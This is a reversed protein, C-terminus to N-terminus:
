FVDEESNSVPEVIDQTLIQEYDTINKETSLVMPVFFEYYFPVSRIIENNVINVIHNTFFSVILSAIMCAVHSTQKMTCVGDDAEEDSFLYVNEYINATEPTVCFIQFHEALLRGDIFLYNIYNERPEDKWLKKWNNFLDKRAKMNDFASICIKSSYNNEIIKQAKYNIRKGDCFEQIINSMASVKFQGIDKSRFLQGGLNHLEIKDDDYLIVDFGARTLLFATWSGIGGCGGILVFDDYNKFWEADKFRAETEVTEM